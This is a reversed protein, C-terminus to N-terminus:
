FFIIGHEANYDTKRIRYPILGSLYLAQSLNINEYDNRKGMVFIIKNRELVILKSFFKKYPFEEISNIPLSYEKLLSKIRILYNEVNLDVMIKNQLDAVQMKFEYIDKNLQDIVAKHFGDTESIMENLKTESLSLKAQTAKLEQKAIVLREDNNLAKTLGNIFTSKNKIILNIQNVIERDIVDCSLTDSVCTKKSANSLCQLFRNAFSSANKNVKMNFHKGCHACKVFGTYPTNKTGFTEEMDKINSKQYKISKKKRIEQVKNFLALSIIAPHSDVVYFQPLEGKNNVTHKSKFSPRFTKQLLANGTYKENKLIGYVATKNWQKNGFTTPINREELYKMIPTAGFGDLFLEYIKRVTSAEQENIVLKGFEDHDYGLMRKTVVHFEGKEFRKTNGWKVNESISRSEEEAMGSLISMILEIKPDFTSINEKEFFVEVNKRKLEQILKISDITNRSFRSISKTIILDILGNRAAEIMLNFQVRKTTNTGSKGEDAYVGLFNWDPHSMIENTYTSVQTDFSLLQVDSSTSVRAYACVNIKKEHLSLDKYNIVEKLEIM